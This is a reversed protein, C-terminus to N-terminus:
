CIREYVEKCMIVDNMCKTEIEEFKGAKYLDYIDSGDIGENLNKIGLFEAIETLKTKDDFRVGAWLQMTDHINKAWKEFTLMDVLGHICYKAAHTRLMQLDFPVNHGVFGVNASAGIECLWYYFEHLMEGENDSGSQFKNGDDSIACICVIQSRTAKLAGKKWENFEDEFKSLEKAYHAGSQSVFNDKKYDEIVRYDKYNAPVKVGPFEAPKYQPEEGLPITEIDLFIKM